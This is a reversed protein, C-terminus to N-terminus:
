SVGGGTPLRAHVRFGGGPAPGATLSGGLAAAREAMGALGHGSPAADALASGAPAGHGDDAVEVTLAVAEYGITVTAATAHAHRITNTLAEQVIRYASQDVVVPLPRATGTVVVEARLGAQRALDCLRDLVDLGAAPTRPAREPDQMRLAGVTTGLETMARDAESRITRLAARAEAPRDDLIDDALGAHITIAAVTHGLVDHVERAIRLREEAVRRAAEREREAVARRLRDQAEALRIRRSRITEGLLIVSVMIAVERLMDALVPLPQEGSGVTRVLLGLMTFYAAVLLAWWLRGASAVTYLAAALPVAPTVGPYELTYYLMLVAVSALLVGLPWRRRVLLLGGIVVGLAYALLDPPRSGPETAVEIAIVTVGATVVALVVDAVAAPVRGPRPGPRGPWIRM